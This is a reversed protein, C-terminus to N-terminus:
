HRTNWDNNTGENKEQKMWNKIHRRKCDQIEWKLKTTRAILDIVSATVLVAWPEM